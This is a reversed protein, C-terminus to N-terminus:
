ILKEKAYPIYNKNQAMWIKARSVTEWCGYIMNGECCDSIIAVIPQGDTALDKYLQIILGLRFIEIGTYEMEAKAKAVISAGVYQRWAILRVGQKNTKWVPKDNYLRSM